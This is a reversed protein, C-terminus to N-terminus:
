LQEHDSEGEARAVAARMADIAERDWQGPIIYNATGDIHEVMLKCAALLAPAALILALAYHGRHPEDEDDLPGCIECVIQEGHKGGMILPMGVSSDLDPYDVKWPTATHKM